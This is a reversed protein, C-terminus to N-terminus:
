RAYSERTLQNEGKGRYMEVVQMSEVDRVFGERKNFLSVQAVLLFFNYVFNLYNM